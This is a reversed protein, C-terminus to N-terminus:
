YERAWGKVRVEDYELELLERLKKRSNKMKQARYISLLETLLEDWSRDGKIKRLEEKVRESVPITTLKSM